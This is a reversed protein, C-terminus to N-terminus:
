WSGIPCTKFKFTIMMSISCDCEGCKTTWDENVVFKPCEKCVTIRDHSEEATCTINEQDSM